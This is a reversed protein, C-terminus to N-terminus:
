PKRGLNIWNAISKNDTYDLWEALKLETFLKGILECHWSPIKATEKKSNNKLYQHIYYATQFKYRNLATEKDPNNLNKVLREGISGKGSNIKEWQYKFKSYSQYLQFSFDKMRQQDEKSYTTSWSYFMDKIFSLAEGEIEIKPPVYKGKVKIKNGGEFTVKKIPFTKGGEELEFEMDIFFSQMVMYFNKIMEHYEKWNKGKEKFSDKDWNNLEEINNKMSRILIAFSKYLVEEDVKIFKSLYPKITNKALELESLSFKYDGNCHCAYPFSSDILNIEEINM